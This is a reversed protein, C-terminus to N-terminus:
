SPRTVGQQNLPPRYAVILSSELAKREHEDPVARAHIQTAGQQKAERWKESPMRRKFSATEGIYKAYWWRTDASLGAFIYVGPIDNWDAAPDCVTFELGGWLVVSSKSM